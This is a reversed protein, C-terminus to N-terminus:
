STTAHALTVRQDAGGAHRFGNALSEQLLRYLTIKVPLSVDVPEGTTALARSRAPRASTTAFRARPSRAASLATSNRCNCARPSRACSPLRPSSARHPGRRFDDACRARRLSARRRARCGDAMTELRMLAFGLDQGPGDHLDASIRRLFRENVATTRAAAGRVRADLKANRELLRSLEAVREGLERRQAVITQSGRRVLGFLLLYMISM